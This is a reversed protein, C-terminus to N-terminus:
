AFFRARLQSAVKGELEISSDDDGEWVAYVSGFDQVITTKNTVCM